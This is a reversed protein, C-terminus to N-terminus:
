RCRIGGGGDRVECGSVWGVYGCGHGGGDAEGESEGVGTKGVGAEVGGGVVAVADGGVM